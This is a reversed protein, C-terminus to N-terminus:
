YSSIPTARCETKQIVYAGGGPKKPGSVFHVVHCLLAAEVEAGQHNTAPRRCSLLNGKRRGECRKAALGNTVVCCLRV